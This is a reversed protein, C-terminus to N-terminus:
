GSASEPGAKPAEELGLREVIEDVVARPRLRDVDIVVDAASEFTPTREDVVSRVWALSTAAARRGKGTGVRQYLTEPRGRLWVVKGADRMRARAGDDMVVFGAVGIIVPPRLTAGREFAALEAQHLAEPGDSSAIEPAARGSAQEVLTDNDFYPWGTRTALRRGITSKGSGMLGILFIRV